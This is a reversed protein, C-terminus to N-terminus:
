FFKGIFLRAGYISYGNKNYYNNYDLGIYSDDGLKGQIGAGYTIGSNSQWANFGFTSESLTGYIYGGKLFLNVDPSIELKPKFNFGYINDLRVDVINTQIYFSNFQTATYSDSFVTGGIFFEGAFNKNFNAGVTGTVLFPSVTLGGSEINYYGADIQFYGSDDFGEANLNFSLFLLIYLINKM